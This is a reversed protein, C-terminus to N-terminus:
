NNEKIYKKYMVEAEVMKEEGFKKIDSEMISEIYSSLNKKRKYFGLIEIKKILDKPLYYSKAGRDRIKTSARTKSDKEEQPQPKENEYEERRLSSDQQLKIKAFINKKNVM